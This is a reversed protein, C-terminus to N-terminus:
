KSTAPYVLVSTGQVAGTPLIAVSINVMDGVKIVSFDSKKSTLSADKGDAKPTSPVMLFVGASKYVPITVSKGGFSITINKDQIRTVKGIAKSALAKVADSIVVSTSNKVEPKEMFTSYGVGILIGLTLFVVAMVLVISFNSKSM